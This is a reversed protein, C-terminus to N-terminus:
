TTNNTYVRFNYFSLESFNSKTIHQGTNLDIFNIRKLLMGDGTTFSDVNVSATYFVGGSIDPLEIKYDNSLYNFLSTDINESNIIWIGSSDDMNVQTSYVKFNGEHVLGVVTGKKNRTFFWILFFVTSFFAIVGFFIFVSYDVSGKDLTKGSTM